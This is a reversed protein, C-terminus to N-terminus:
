PQVCFAFRELSASSNVTVILNWDVTGDCTRMSSPVGPVRFNLQYLGVTSPAVGAYTIFPDLGSGPDTGSSEPLLTSFRIDGYLPVANMGTAIERTEVPQMPMGFGYGYEGVTEGVRAPLGPAVPSGNAHLVAAGHIYPFTEYDLALAGRGTAFHINSPVAAVLLDTSPIGDELVM